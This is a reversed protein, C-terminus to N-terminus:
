EVLAYAVIVGAETLVIYQKGGVMYTAPAASSKQGLDIHWAPKGTSADLAVTGGGSGFFVLGDVTSLPEELRDQPRRHTPGDIAHLVGLRVTRASSDANERLCRM